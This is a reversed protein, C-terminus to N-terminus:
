RVSLTRQVEPCIGGAGMDGGPSLARGAGGWGHRSPLCLGEPELALETDRQDRRQAASPLHPGFWSGNWVIGAGSLSM